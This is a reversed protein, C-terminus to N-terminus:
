VVGHLMQNPLTTKRHILKPEQHNTEKHELRDSCLRFTIIASSKQREVLDHEAIDVNARPETFTCCKGFVVNLPQGTEVRQGAIHIPLEGIRKKQCLPKRGSWASQLRHPLNQSGSLTLLLQNTM